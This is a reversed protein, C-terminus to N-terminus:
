CNFILGTLPGKNRTIRKKEGCEAEQRCLTFFIGWFFWVQSCCLCAFQFVPASGPTLAVPPSGSQLLRARATIQAACRAVRKSGLAHPGCAIQTREFPRCRWHQWSLCNILISANKLLMLLSPSVFSPRASSETCVFVSLYIPCFLVQETM